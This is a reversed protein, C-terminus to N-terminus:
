QKHEMSEKIATNTHHYIREILGNVERLDGREAARQAEPVFARAEHLHQEIDAQVSPSAITGGLAAKHYTEWAHDVAHEAEHVVQAAEPHPHALREIPGAEAPSVLWLVLCFVRGCLQLAEHVSRCVSSSRHVFM